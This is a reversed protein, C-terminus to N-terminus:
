SAVASGGLVDVNRIWGSDEDHTVVMRQSQQWATLDRERVQVSQALRRSTITHNKAAAWPKRSRYSQLLSWVLFLAVAVLIASAHSGAVAFLERFSQSTSVIHETSAGLFVRISGLLPLWLYSWFAWGLVTLSTWLLRKYFPQCAFRDIILTNM